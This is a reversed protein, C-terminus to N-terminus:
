SQSNGSRDHRSTREFGLYASIVEENEAIEQPKGEAIKRGFNLVVIRECVGMVVKLDHEVLMITVGRNRTQRVVDMIHATEAVSMGATPEDLMLMKPNTALAICIGLAKQLGHPLSSALEDTVEGLGLSDLLTMGRRRIDQEDRRASPSRFVSSLVGARRQLHHAVLINELVTQNGVLNVLQFTRVLGLAAIRNPRLGTIDRGGFVVRGRTPKHFGSFLNFVTTKGAGNPGILGVIEGERVDFDLDGVAQLGGFHKTLNHVELM